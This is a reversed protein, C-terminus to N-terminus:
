WTINIEGLKRTPLLHLIFLDLTSRDIAIQFIMVGNIKAILIMAMGTKAKGLINFFYSGTCKNNHIFCFVFVYDCLL